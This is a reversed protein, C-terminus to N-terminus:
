NVAPIRGCENPSDVLLCKKCLCTKMRFHKENQEGFLKLKNCREMVTRETRELELAIDSFGCGRNFMTTLSEIEDKSWYRKNNEVSKPNNRMQIIKDRKEKDSM